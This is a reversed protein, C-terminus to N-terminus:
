YAVNPDDLNSDSELESDSCSFYVDEEEGSLEGFATVTPNRYM